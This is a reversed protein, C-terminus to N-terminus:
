WTAAREGLGGDGFSLPTQGPALASGFADTLNGLVHDMRKASGM